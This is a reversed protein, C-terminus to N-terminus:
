SEDVNAFLSDSDVDSVIKLVHKARSSGVYFDAASFVEKAGPTTVDVMVVIDAELGKFSRITSYLIGSGNRWGELDETLTVRSLHDRFKMCSFQKTYPSLVAIQSPKVGEQNIWNKVWGNLLKKIENHDDQRVVETDVGVPANPHTPIPLRFIDGATKAIARTNRCNTPLLFPSGLVPISSGGDVYLNQAPDYFVYLCGSDVEKNALEIPMWWDPCFDQGEDVVVADFRIDPLEELAQYLLDAAEHEWFEESEMSGQAFRVGAKNCMDRCFGHFHRVHILDSYEEPVSDKLWIALNVNYCLLLTRKGQGAFRHAQAKALMTKGSGAVGQIAARDNQSLVDLVRVQEETLRFLAEEQEEISRCLVPIIKFKPLLATMVKSLESDDMAFPEDGRSWQRLATSIKDGMNPLDDTSLCISPQAGPPMPGEFKCDPFVAAYGFGFPPNEGGYLQRKIQEIIAQLNKSAQEFPDQIPKLPKGPIRRAWGRIDSEYVIEGGKVELVLLGLEPWVIVFDTEGEHLTVNGTYDNRDPRLWPYSHFVRVNSPLQEILVRAVDREPKQRIEDVEIKPILTAM